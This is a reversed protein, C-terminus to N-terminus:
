ESLYNKTALKNIEFVEYGKHQLLYYARNQYGVSDANLVYDFRSQLNETEKVIEGVLEKQHVWRLIADITVDYGRLAETKPFDGFSKIYLSDFAKTNNNSYTGSIYTFNLDGLQKKPINFDDYANSRYTTFLQIDRGKSIQSNLLTTVNAILNLNQSEFIVKNSISDLLLSDILDPVIYGKAEPRLIQAFPYADYLEKEVLRNLTDTIILVNQTTDIVTNLYNFMKARIIQASTISQYVNPRKKVPNSSLPAIMPILKLSDKLSMFDFNSPILPGIIFDNSSWNRNNLEDNLKSKKNETDIVNLVVEIGLQAAEEAAMIVGSYFDLAITHLNRKKLLEETKKISDFEIQDAKFPLLVGLTVKSNEPISERFDVKEVLLGDELKFDMILSSPIKLVMGEQLGAIELVPNLEILDKSSIGIKKEIRYFGEKPKVTYYNFAKDLALVESTERKPVIIEQGAKLVDTIEPNYAELQQITIGYRYALRWKTEKPKVLYKSLSDPLSEKIPVEVKKYVPIQLVMRKKLGIKEVLPNFQYIQEIEINYKRALGYITEKKKVKHSVFSDPQIQATLAMTMLFAFLFSFHKARIKMINNGSLLQQHNRALIM